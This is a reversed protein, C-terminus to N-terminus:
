ATTNGVVDAETGGQLKSGSVEGTQETSAAEGGRLGFAIGAATGILTLAVLPWPLRIGLLNDLSFRGPGSLALSTAAAINTMPLEAGGETVWIPKDKHVKAYAMVMPAIMTIPGVPYLFGLTTLAGSGFESAGAAGAWLRSPHMGMSRLWGATGEMGYGGFWGFLKQGGHGALLPGTVLRLVLKGLDALM